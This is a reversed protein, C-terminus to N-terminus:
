RVTLADEYAVCLRLLSEVRAQMEDAPLTVEDHLGPAEPVDAVAAHIRRREAPSIDFDQAIAVLARRLDVRAAEDPGLLTLAPDLWWQDGEDCDELADVLAEFLLTQAAIAVPPAGEHDDFPLAVARRVLAEARDEDGARMARMARMAKVLLNEAGAWLGRSIPALAHNSALQALGLPRAMEDDLWEQFAQRPDTHM